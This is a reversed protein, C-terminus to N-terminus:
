KEFFDDKPVNKSMFISNKMKLVNSLRIKNTHTDVIMIYYSFSINFTLIHLM